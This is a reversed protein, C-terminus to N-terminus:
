PFFARSNCHTVKKLRCDWESHDVKRVIKCNKCNKSLKRLLIKVDDLFSLLALRYKRSQSVKERFFFEGFPEGKLKEINESLISTSFDWLTGLEGISQCKSTRKSNKLRLNPASKSRERSTQRINPKRLVCGGINKEFSDSYLTAHCLAFYWVHKGISSNKLFNEIKRYVQWRCQNM